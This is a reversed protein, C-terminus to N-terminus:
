LSRKAALFQRGIFETYIPPISQAMEARIMWDIGLARQGDKKRWEMRRNSDTKARAGGGNGVITWVRNPDLTSLKTSGRPACVHFPRLWSFSTEFLRHRILPLGFMQGCLFMDTELPARGVNEIVYDKGSSQLVSRILPIDDPWANPRSRNTGYSTLASYFKCVPSAHILDFANLDVPPNLADGQIFKFPYRPQRSIDVGVIQTFGARHYGM